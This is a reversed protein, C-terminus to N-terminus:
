FNRPALGAIAAFCRFSEKTTPIGFHAELLCAYDHDSICVRVEWPLRTNYQQHSEGKHGHIIEFVSGGEVLELVIGPTPELMGFCRVICPHNVATMKGVELELDSIAKGDMGLDFTHKKIAVKHSEYMGAYVTAVSGTGIKNHVRIKSEHIRLTAKQIRPEVQAIARVGGGGNGIDVPAYGGNFGTGYKPTFIFREEVLQTPICIDHTPICIDPRSM